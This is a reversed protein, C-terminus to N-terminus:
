VRFIEALKTMLMMDGDVRLQGSMFAQMGDTEGSVIEALTKSNMILSISPHDHKGETIECQGEKIVVSYNEADEIEFQFVLDLNLANDADFSTKLSDFITAVSM